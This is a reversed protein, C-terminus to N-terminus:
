CRTQNGCSNSSRTKREFWVLVDCQFLKKLWLDPKIWEIFVRNEFDQKENKLLGLEITLASVRDELKMVDENCTKLKQTTEALHTEALCLKEEKSGVNFQLGVNEQRLNCILVEYEKLKDEMNVIQRIYNEKEM